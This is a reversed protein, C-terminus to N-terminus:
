VDVRRARWLLGGLGAAGLAFQTLLFAWVPPPPNVELARTKEEFVIFALTRLGDIPDVFASVWYPLGALDRLAGGIAVLVLFTGFVAATAYARRPSLSALFGGIGGIVWAMMTGLLLVPGIRPGVTVFAAAPDKAVGIEGIWLLLLPAFAVCCVATFVALWRMLAYQTRTITRTFFLPLVRHQQDRSLLEPGQAAMYLIFLMIQGAILAAYNIPLQGNSAGAAVVSALCPLMTVTIVFVPVAKSLAPRGLGFMARFGQRFLARRAGSAGEFAGDYRRYGLDHIVSGGAPTAASPRALSPGAVSDSM